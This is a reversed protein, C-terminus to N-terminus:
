SRARWKEKVRSTSGCDLCKYKARYVKKNDISIQKRVVKISECVNCCEILVFNPRKLVFLLSMKIRQLITPTQKPM